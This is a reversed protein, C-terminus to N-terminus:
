GELFLAEPDEILEKVRVLFRVSDSGDVIRHDYSLALYMMPRIEIQGNVVVPRDQIKHMGLIGVQPYNLIPTSMLSGFIGGNTITFSGGVLESISLKKERAKEALQKIEKEIAAYSKKDADRIIPVVLGDEAGVAIGIDYYKKLVIDTGQIEANLYPYAKLAAVVAKTFISMFGLKIGNRKEFQENRRKRLEMVATMDVENFTTLMAATNQAEKLRDAIVRRMRTMPIREEARLASAAIPAVAAPKAAAPAAAPAPTPAATKAAVAGRVDASVIRGGAGSGAVAALDVGTDAAVKAALPTARTGSAPEAEAAPPAAPKSVPAPAAAVAGEAIIALVDGIGVTDGEERVITQLVGATEASVATNAKDTELEVIDEGAAVAEGAKKLWRLVTAETVSEGVSPVRIEVSM